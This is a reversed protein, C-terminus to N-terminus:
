SFRRQTKINHGTTCKLCAITEISKWSDYLQQGLFKIKDKNMSEVKTKAKKTAIGYMVKEADKGYKKVLNQKNQLLGQLVVERSELERETLKRENLM